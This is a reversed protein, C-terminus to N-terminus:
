TGNSFFFVDGNGTFPFFLWTQSKQIKLMYSPVRIKNSRRIDNPSRPKQLRMQIVTVHLQRARCALHVLSRIWVRTGMSSCPKIWTRGTLSKVRTFQFFLLQTVSIEYFVINQIQLDKVCKTLTEKYKENCQVCIKGSYENKNCTVLWIFFM